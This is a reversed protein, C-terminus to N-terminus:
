ETIDLSSWWDLPPIDQYQVPDFTAPLTPVVPAPPSPAPPSFAPPSPSYKTRKPPQDSIAAKVAVDCLFLHWEEETVPSICLRQHLENVQDLTEWDSLSSITPPPSKRKQVQSWTPHNM